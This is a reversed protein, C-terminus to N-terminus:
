IKIISTAKKRLNCQRIFDKITLLNSGRREVFSFAKLVEDTKDYKDFFNTDLHKQVDTKKTKQILIEEVSEKNGLLKYENYEKDIFSSHSEKKSIKTDLYPKSVVDGDNCPGFKTTIKEDERYADNIKFKLQILVINLVRDKASVNNWFESRWLNYYILDDLKTTYENAKGNKAPNHKSNEWWWVRKCTKSWTGGVM